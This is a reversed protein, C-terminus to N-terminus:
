EKHKKDGACEWTPDPTDPAWAPGPMAKPGLAEILYIPLCLSYLVPGTSLPRFEKSEGELFCNQLV